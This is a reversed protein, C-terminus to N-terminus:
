CNEKLTQANAAKDLFWFADPRMQAVCAVPLTCCEGRHLRQVIPAKSEGCVVFFLDCAQVLCPLSISMRALGDKPACPEVWIPSDELIWASGPFLSAIHGDEGIGLWVAHFVPMGNKIELYQAMEAAYLHAGECLDPYAAMPHLQSIPVNLAKWKENMVGFNNAGHEVPVSREDTWWIHIRSWPVGAGQKQIAFQLFELPPRGGAMALHFFDESNQLVKAALNIIHQAIREWLLEDSAVVYRGLGPLLSKSM